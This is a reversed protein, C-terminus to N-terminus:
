EFINNIEIVVALIYLFGAVPFNIVYMGWELNFSCQVLATALTMLVLVFIYSIIVYM